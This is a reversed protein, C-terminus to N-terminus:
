PQTSQVHFQPNNLLNTHIVGAGELEAINAAGDSNRGRRVTGTLTSAATAGDVFVTPDPDGAKRIFTYIRGRGRLTLTVVDGDNDRYTVQKGVHYSWRIVGDAGGNLVNGALDKVVHTGTGKVRLARMFREAKFPVVPTLTVSRSAENYTLSSFQIKGGVVSRVHPKAAFPLLDGLSFGNNSKPPPPKGFLYAQPDQATAANLSENFTVVVGTINHVNGVLEVSSVAPGSSLLSRSELGEVGASCSAGGRRCLRRLVSGVYTM